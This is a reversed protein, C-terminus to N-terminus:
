EILQLSRLHVRLLHERLYFRVGCRYEFLAAEIDGVAHVVGLLYYLVKYRAPLHRLATVHLGHLHHPPTLYIPLASARGLVVIRKELRLRVFNEKQWECM